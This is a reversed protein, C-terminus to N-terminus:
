QKILEPADQYKLLFFFPHAAHVCEGVRAADIIDLFKRENYLGKRQPSTNYTLM